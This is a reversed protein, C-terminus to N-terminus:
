GGPPLAGELLGFGRGADRDVTAVLDPLAEVTGAEVARELALASEALRMLGFTQAGGKITHAIRRLDPMNRAALATAMLGRREALEGSFMRALRAAVEAGVDANM